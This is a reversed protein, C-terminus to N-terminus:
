GYNDHFRYQKFSVKQILLNNWPKTVKRPWYLSSDFETYIVHIRFALCITLFTSFCVDAHDNWWIWPRLENLGLSVYMRRCVLRWQNRCHSTAQGAGLWWKFWHQFITLQVSPSFSWHFRLRFLCIKMWSFANSFTTQSIAPMKNRGCQTSVVLPAFHPEIKDAM